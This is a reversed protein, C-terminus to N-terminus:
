GEEGPERDLVSRVADGLPGLMTLHKDTPRLEQEIRAAVELMALRLVRNARPAVDRLTRAMQERTVPPECLEGKAYRVHEEPTVPLGLQRRRRAINPPYSGGHQQEPRLESAEDGTFPRKKM